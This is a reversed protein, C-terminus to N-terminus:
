APKEAQFDKRSERLMQKTRAIAQAVEQKREVERQEAVTPENM